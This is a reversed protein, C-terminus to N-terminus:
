GGGKGEPSTENSELNELAYECCQVVLDSFTINKRQAIEHLEEAFSKSIRITRNVKEPSNIKFM